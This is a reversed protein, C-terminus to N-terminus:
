HNPTPAPSRRTIAAKTRALIMKLTTQQRKPNLALAPQQRNRHRQRSHKPTAQPTNPSTTAANAHQLTGAQTVTKVLQAIEGIRQGTVAIQQYAAWATEDGHLLHRQIHDIVHRHKHDPAGHLNLSAALAFRSGWQLQEIVPGTLQEVTAAAMTDDTASRRNGPPQQEHKLAELLQEATANKLAATTTERGFIGGSYIHGIKYLATHLRICQPYTECCQYLAVADDDWDGYPPENTRPDALGNQQRLGPLMSALFDPHEVTEVIQEATMRTQQQNTAHMGAVTGDCVRGANAAGAVARATRGTLCNGAGAESNLIQQRHEQRERGPGAQATDAPQM